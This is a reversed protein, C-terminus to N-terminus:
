VPVRAHVTWGGPQPGATLSGGVLLLRENM